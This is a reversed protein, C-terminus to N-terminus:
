YALVTQISSPLSLLISFFTYPHLLGLFFIVAKKLVVFSPEVSCYGVRM